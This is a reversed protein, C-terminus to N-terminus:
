RRGAALASGVAAETYQVLQVLDDPLSSMIGPLNQMCDRQQQPSFFVYRTLGTAVVLAVLVRDSLNMSRRRGLAEALRISEWAAANRQDPSVPMYLTQASLLKRKTVPEVVGARLLREGVQDAADQSLYALWTRIEKHQPQAVLLDLLTHALSDGPPEHSVVYLDGTMARLRGFLMLEGLLGAALGLGTARPHLRSRGTRDDHAILYYSNALVAIVSRPVRCFSIM